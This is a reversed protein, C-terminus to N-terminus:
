LPSLLTFTIENTDASQVVFQASKYSYKEGQKFDLAFEQTFAARALGDIYERYVFKIQNNALGLYSLTAAFGTAYYNPPTTVYQTKSYNVSDSLDAMYFATEAKVSKNLWRHSWYLESSAEKNKPLFLGGGHQSSGNLSFTNSVAEYFEGQESHAVLAYIGPEVVLTRPKGRHATTAELRNKVIVADYRHLPFNSTMEHGITVTRTKGVLHTIEPGTLMAVNHRVSPGTSCSALSIVFLVCLFARILM